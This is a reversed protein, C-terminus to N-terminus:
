EWLGYYHEIYYDALAQKGERDQASYIDEVACVEMGACKGAQIGPIIDEFVLCNCPAEKLGNAAALFIDPAPKGNLVDCGTMICSFYDHLGHVKAM